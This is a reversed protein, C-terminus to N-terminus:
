LNKEVIDKHKFIIKNNISLFSNNKLNSIYKFNSILKENTLKINSTILFLFQTLLENYEKKNELKINDILEDQLNITADTIIELPILDM